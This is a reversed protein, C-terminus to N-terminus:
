GLKGWSYMAYMVTAFAIFAFIVFDFWGFYVCMGLLILGVMATFFSNGVTKSAAFVALFVVFFSIISTIVKSGPPNLADATIGLRYWLNWQYNDLQVIQWYISTASYVNGDVSNADIRVFISQLNSNNDFVCPLGTYINLATGINLDPQLYVTNGDTWLPTFFRNSHLCGNTDYVRVQMASLTKNYLWIQANIDISGDSEQLLYGTTPSWKIFLGGIPAPPTSEVGIDLGIRYTLSGATPVLTATHVLIGDYWFTATYETDLLMPITATGAADTVIEQIVVGDAGPVVGDILITVDSLPGTTTLNTVYFIFNGSDAVPPLYPQLTYTELGETFDISYQRPYYEDAINVDITILVPTSQLPICFANLDIMDDYFKITDETTIKVSYGITSTPITVGTNENIPALVIINVDNTIQFNGDSSNFDTINGTDEILGIIGYNGDDVLSYDWTYSCESVTTFDQDVCYAATLNLDEVIVTGTGQTGNKSTNLDITLRRNGSNYVSFDITINGDIGYAFIPNTKFDLGNITTINLDVNNFIGFNADSSDFNTTTTGDNILGLIRYNGDAVANYDWTYSCESVTTFNQDPCYAATLNLDEIIITGTGQTYNKSYNLDITLRNNDRSWVNFDITVNGDEKYNFVPYSVFNSDNIRTILLDIQTADFGLLTPYGINEEITWINVFDWHTFSAEKKMNATTLGTTGSSAGDLVQPLAVQADWYSQYVRPGGGEQGLFAGNNDGTPVGLSIASTSYCNFINADATYSAFGAVTNTGSNNIVTTNTTYCDKIKCGGGVIGGFGSIIYDGAGAVVAGDVYVQSITADTAVGFIVTSTRASNWSNFDLVGFNQITGQLDSFLGGDKAENNHITVNSITYYKGDLNGYFIRTEGLGIPDFNGFGSCDLNNGLEWYQLKAAAMTPGGAAITYSDLTQLHNCDTIIWPETLSGLGSYAHSGSSLVVLGVLILAFSHIRM